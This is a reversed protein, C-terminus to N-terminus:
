YGNARNYNQEARLLAAKADMSGGALAQAARDIEENWGGIPVESTFWVSKQMVEAVRALYHKSPEKFFEPNESVTSRRMPVAGGEMVWM